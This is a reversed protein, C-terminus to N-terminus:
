GYAIVFMGAAMVTLGMMVITGNRMFEIMQLEM